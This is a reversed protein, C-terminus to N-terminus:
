IAFVVYGIPSPPVFKAMERIVKSSEFTKAKAESKLILIRM